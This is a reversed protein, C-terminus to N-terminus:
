VAEDEPAHRDAVLAAIGAALLIVAGLAVVVVGPGTGPLYLLYPWILGLLLAGLGLGPLGTRIWMPVPNPVLAAGLVALVGLVVVPHFPGALGWRDVYDIGTAGIVSMGWPLLFGVAAMASGAVALWSIFETLRARDLILDSTPKAPADTAAPADEGPHGAWARAPAPPGAPTAPLPPVYAGPANALSPSTVLAVAPAPAPARDERWHTAAVPWQPEVDDQQRGDGNASHGLTVPRDPDVFSPGPRAVNPPAPADDLLGGQPGPVAWDAPIDWDQSAAAPLDAFKGAASAAGASAVPGAAEVPAPSVAEAPAVDVLVSPTSRSARARKTPATAVVKRAAGAVSALLEGCAPCSLRGYPVTAGCATCVIAKSSM